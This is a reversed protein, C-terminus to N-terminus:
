KSTLRTSVFAEISAADFSHGRNHIVTEVNKLGAVANATRREMAEIRMTGTENRGWTFLWQTRSRRLTSRLDDAVFLNDLGPVGVLQDPGSWEVWQNIVSFGSAIIAYDPSSQLSAVLAAGGGQSLGVTLTRKACIKFAKQIALLDVLYSVSYSGGRNLHWNYIFYGHIKRGAGDSWALFDENQKIFVYTDFNLRRLTDAIPFHYNDKDGLFIESSQNVGSGPVILAVNKSRCSGALSGYAFAERENGDVKYVVRVVPLKLNSFSDGSIALVEIREYVGDFDKQYFFIDQNRQYIDNL